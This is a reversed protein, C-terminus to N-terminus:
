KGSASIRDRRKLAWRRHLEERVRRAIRDAARSIASELTEDAVDATLTGASALQVEVTCRKDIGGRPGNLDAVTVRMRSIRSAFRSLAFGLRREVLEKLAKGMPVNRTAIDMMM